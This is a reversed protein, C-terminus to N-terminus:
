SGIESKRSGVEAAGPARGSSRREVIRGPCQILGARSRRVPVDRLLCHAALYGMERKRFDYATIGYAMADQDDHIGVLTLQAPLEIGHELLWEMAAVAIDEGSCVWATCTGQQWTKAFLSAMGLRICDQQVIDHLHRSLRWAPGLQSVGSRHRKEAMAELARISPNARIYDRRQEQSFGARCHALLFHDGFIRRLGRALGEFHDRAWRDAEFFDFFAIQRHGLSALYTAVQEGAQGHDVLVASATRTLKPPRGPIKSYDYLVVPRQKKSLAALERQIAAGTEPRLPSERFQAGVHLFGITGAAPLRRLAATGLGPTDVIEIESIGYHNLEREFSRLFERSFRNELLRTMQTPSGIVYVRGKQQHLIGRRGKVGVVYGGGRRFILGKEAVQRLAARITSKSAKCRIQLVKQLPLPSGARYAGHVIESILAEAIEGARSPPPTIDEAAAHRDPYPTKAYVGSNRIISVLGRQALLRLAAQMTGYSVGYEKALSRLSALRTGDPLRDADIKAALRGAVLEAKCSPSM